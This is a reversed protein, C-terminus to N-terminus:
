DAKVLFIARPRAGPKKETVPRQEELVISTIDKWACVPGRRVRKKSQPGLIHQMVKFTETKRRKPRGESINKGETPLWVTKVSLWYGEGKKQEETYLRTEL